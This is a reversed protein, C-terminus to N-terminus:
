KQQDLDILKQTLNLGSRYGNKYAQLFPWNPTDFSKISLESKDLVGEEEKIIDMLRELVPKASRLHLLFNEREKPDSLHQTWKTYM